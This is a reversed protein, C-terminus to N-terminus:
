KVKSHWLENLKAADEPALLVGSHGNGWEIAPIAESLESLSIHAPGNAPAFRRCSIDVYHRFANSKKRFDPNLYPMSVIEGRFVIGATGQKESGKGVRVMYFIDGVHVDQWEYFTWDIAFDTPFRKTMDEYKDPTFSSFDPNWRMIYTKPHFNVKKAAAFWIDEWDNEPMKDVAAQAGDFRHVYPSEAVVDYFDDSDIYVPTDHLLVIVTQCNPMVVNEDNRLKCFTHSGEGRGLSFLAGPKYGMYCWQSRLFKEFVDVAVKKLEAMVEPEVEADADDEQDVPMREGSEQLSKFKERQERMIPSSKALEDLVIHFERLHGNVGVHDGSEGSLLFAMNDLRADYLEDVLQQGEADLHVDNRKIEIDPHTRRVYALIQEVIKCDTKSALYPLRIRINEKDRLIDVGQTSLKEAMIRVAIDAYGESEDEDEEDSDADLDDDEEDDIDEDEEEESAFPNLSNYLTQALIDVGLNQAIIDVVQTLDFKEAWVFLFEDRNITHYVRDSFSLEATQDKEFVPIESDGLVAYLGTVPYFIITDVVVGGNNEVAKRYAYLQGAYLGAFHESETNFVFDEGLPCSKFDVIVCRKKGDADDDKLWWVLDMAGVMNRREVTAVFPMEHSVKSATGYNETLFSVLSNWVRLIADTTEKSDDYGSARLLGMAYSRYEDGSHDEVGAFIHHLCDGFENMKAGSVIGLNMGECLKGYKSLLSYGVLSSPSVDREPADPRYGISPLARPVKTVKGEDEVSDALLDNDDISDNAFLCGCGLLDAGTGVTVDPVADAEPDASNAGVASFWSIQENDSGLALILVDRPRTMGVYLINAEQNWARKHAHEFVDSAKVKQDIHENIVSQKTGYIWPLVRICVEPFLNDPTPLQAYGYHVGFIERFVIHDESLKEDNLSTLVVYKWQLGKAKHYTLLKVGEPNGGCCIEHTRVYDIFGTITAAEGNHVCGEEFKLSAGIIAFLCARQIDPCPMKKIEDFLGLEIILTEVLSSISQEKLHGSIANTHAILEINNLYNPAHPRREASHPYVRAWMEDWNLKTNMIQEIGYGEEVLYAVTAKALDDQPSVLIALLALVLETSQLGNINQSSIDVPISEGDLAQATCNVNANSRCLIAIDSPKVGSKVLRAVHAALATVHQKGDTNEWFRLQPGVPNQPDPQRHPKLVINKEELVDSYVNKFTRNCVEVIDPLSRWSTDLTESSCGDEGKAIKNMVAQTLETASGRFAYIAQKSDGVWYSQQMLDSLKDFIKVQIPSCDQYEDVFLYTFSQAIEDAVDKQSLLSLFHAEMDDYDLVNREEKFQRYNKRWKEALKFILEIYQKQLDFTAQTQFIGTAGNVLDIVDADPEVKNKSRGFSLKSSALKTYWGLNRNPIEKILYDLVALRGTQTQSTGGYAETFDRLRSICSRLVDEDDEVKVNPDVFQRLFDLSADISHRYDEIGYNTSFSIIRSLDEKWFDYIFAGYTKKKDIKVAFSHLFRLEADSPLDAVSQAVYADKDEDSMVGLDPSLGLVFWYKRIFQYAVSHITGIVAMDLKNAELTLGREILMAKAKTKMEAAAMETFTTMIVQEPRVKGAAVLDALESTLRYTKGSGAGANIYLVNKM